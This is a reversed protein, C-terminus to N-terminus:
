YMGPGEVRNDIVDEAGNITGVWTPTVFGAPVKITPKVISTVFAGADHFAALRNVKIMVSSSPWPTAVCVSVVDSTITPIGIMSVGILSQSSGVLAVSTYM